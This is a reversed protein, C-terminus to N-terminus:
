KIKEPIWNENSPNRLEKPVYEYFASNQALAMDILWFEDGNQMIDISWQGKLDIEQLIDELKEKVLEKYNEYNEKLKEKHSEFIIADHLMDPTNSDPSQNFRKQMVEEDWYQHIALLKKTDFDVFVRYETHLPLGKYITPCNEKDEIYKRVCWENTTSAGYISPAKALIPGKGPISKMFVSGAMLVAQNQIFILYQGIEMVEKPNEIKANRFDFKSSFTGTKIFYKKQPDLKFAKQCFRDAIKLSTSTLSSYDKRTLQLLPLPVKIITTEPIKFFNGKKVAETIKPLWYGIANPNQGLMKYIINDLDLIDLGQRFRNYFEKKTKPDPSELYKKYNVLLQKSPMEDKLDVSYLSGTLQPRLKEPLKNIEEVTLPTELLKKPPEHHNEYHNEYHNKCSYHYVKLNVLLEDVIKEIYKEVLANYNQNDSNNQPHNNAIQKASIGFLNNDDPNDILNKKYANEFAKLTAPDTKILKAIEKKENNTILNKLLNFM